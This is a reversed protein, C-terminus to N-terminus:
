RASFNPVNQGRSKRTNQIIYDTCHNVMEDIMWIDCLLLTCTDSDVNDSIETPKTPFFLLQQKSLLEPDNSKIDNTVSCRIRNILGRDCDVKGGHVQAVIYIVM